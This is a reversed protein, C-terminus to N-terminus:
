RRFNGQCFLDSLFEKKLLKGLESLISIRGGEVTYIKMSVSFKEFLNLKRSRVLDSAYVSRNASRSNNDRASAEVQVDIISLAVPSSISLQRAVIESKLVFKAKTNTYHVVKWHGQECESYLIDIEEAGTLPKLCHVTLASICTPAHFELRTFFGM